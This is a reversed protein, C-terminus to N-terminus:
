PEGRYDDEHTADYWDLHHCERLAGYPEPEPTPDYGPNERCVFRGTPDRLEIHSIGAWRRLWPLADALVDADAYAVRAEAETAFDVGTLCCDDTHPECQWLNVWWRGDGPLSGQTWADM